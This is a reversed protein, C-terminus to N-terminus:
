RAENTLHPPGRMTTKPGSKLTDRTYSPIDLSSLGLFKGLAPTIGRTIEGKEDSGEKGGEKDGEDNGIM